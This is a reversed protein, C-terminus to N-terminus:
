ALEHTYEFGQIIGQKELRTLSRTRAINVGEALEQYASRYNAFRQKWRIDETM